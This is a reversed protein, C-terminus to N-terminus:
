LPQPWSYSSPEKVFGGAGPDQSPNRMSAHIEGTHLDIAYSLTSVRTVDALFPLRDPEALRLEGLRAWTAADLTVQPSMMRVLDAATVRELYSITTEDTVFGAGVESVDCGPVPRASGVLMTRVVDPRPTATLKDGAASLVEMATWVAERDVGILPLMPLARVPGPDHGEFGSDVSMRLLLPVGRLVGTSRTEIANQVQLLFATLTLIQRVVRPVAYSTGFTGPVFENAGYAVVTVGEEPGDGTTGISSTPVRVTGDEDAMAGVAVTWPLRALPSLTNEGFEGWNGAAVVVPLTRAVVRTAISLLDDPALVRGQRLQLSLGCVAPHAIRTQTALPLWGLVDPDEETPALFQPPEDLGLVWRNGNVAWTRALHSLELLSRNLAWALHYSTPTYATVRTGVPPASAWPHSPRVALLPLMKFRFIREDGLGAEIEDTLDTVTLLVAAGSASGSMDGRGSPTTSPTPM